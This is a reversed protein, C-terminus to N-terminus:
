DEETQIRRVMRELDLAAAAVDAFEDGYRRALARRRAMSLIRMYEQGCQAKCRRYRNRAYSARVAAFASLRTHAWSSRRVAEREDSPLDRWPGSSGYGACPRSCFSVVDHKCRTTLRWFQVRCSPCRMATYQDSRRAPPPEFLTLPRRGLPASESVVAPSDVIYRGRSVRRLQGRKHASWIWTLIPRMQSGLADALDQARFVGLDLAATLRAHM